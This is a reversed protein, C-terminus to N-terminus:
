NVYINLRSEISLLDVFLFILNEKLDDSFNKQNLYENLKKNFEDENDISISKEYINM